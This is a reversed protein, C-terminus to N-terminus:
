YNYSKNNYLFGGIVIAFPPNFVILLKMLHLCNM